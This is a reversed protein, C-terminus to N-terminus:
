QLPNGALDYGYERAETPSLGLTAVVAVVNKTLSWTIAYGEAISPNEVTARFVDVANAPFKDKNIDALEFFHGEAPDTERCSTLIGSIGWEISWAPCSKDGVGPLGPQSVIASITERSAEVGSMRGVKFQSLIELLQVNTEVTSADPKGNFRQGDIEITRESDLGCNASSIVTGNPAAEIQVNVETCDPLSRAFSQYVEGVNIEAVPIFATGAPQPAGDSTYPEPDGWNQGILAGTASQSNDYASLTFGLHGVTIKTVLQKGSAALLQEFAQQIGQADKPLSKPLATGGGGCGSFMLMAALLVPICKWKSM